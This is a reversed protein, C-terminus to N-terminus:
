YLDSIKLERKNEPILDCLLAYFKQGDKIVDDSYTQRIYLLVESVKNNM